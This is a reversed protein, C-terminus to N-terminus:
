RNQFIKSLLPCCPGYHSKVTPLFSTERLAVQKGGLVQVLGVLHLLYSLLERVDDVIDLLLVVTGVHLLGDM